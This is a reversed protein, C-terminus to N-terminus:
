KRSWDERLREVPDPERDARIEADAREGAAKVEAQTARARAAASGESRGKLWAALFAALILGVGAVYKTVRAGILTAWTALM